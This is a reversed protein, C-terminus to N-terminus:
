GTAAQKKKKTKGDCKDKGREKKREEKREIVYGLRACSAV